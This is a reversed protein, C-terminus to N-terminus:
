STKADGEGGNMIKKVVDIPANTRVATPCFHTRSAAFGEAQLSSIMENIPIIRHKTKSAVNHLDYYGYGGIECEQRMLLLLRNIQEKEQYNRSQNLQIMDQITSKEWLPGMWLPGAWSIKSGCSSCVLAQPMREAFRALCAPCYLGFGISKVAEVARKAGTRMKFIVKIYHQHSLTLIPIAELNFQASCLVTKAILIRAANEHCMDNNAPVAGYNKICASYHAGCLVATDTATLSLFGEKKRALCKCADFLFLAPSGFPDLEVFDFEGEQFFLSADQRKVSCRIKNAKANKRACQTAIKSRDCLTLVGVNENEKKYRLGRVGSACMVDAVSIEKRVAGVALSCISRCLKMQPNYFVGKPVSLKVLGEVIQM